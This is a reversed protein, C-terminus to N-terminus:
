VSERRGPRRHIVAACFRTPAIVVQMPLTPARVDGLKLFGFDDDRRADLGFALKELGDLADPHSRALGTVPASAAEVDGNSTVKGHVISSDDDGAQADNSRDPLSM